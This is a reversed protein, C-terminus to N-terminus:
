ITFSKQNKRLRGIKKDIKPMSFKFGNNMLMQTFKPQSLRIGLKKEYNQRSPEFLKNFFDTDVAMKTVRRNVMIM